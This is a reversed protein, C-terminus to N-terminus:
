AEFLPVFAFSQVDVLGLDTMKLEPIVPLALFSLAMFPNRLPSGWDRARAKLREIAEVVVELPQDSMLGAIPLPMVDVPGEDSGIALGGGCGRVAEVVRLIATDSAGVAILNHSDHAVTTAIAGRALGIGIVFGVAPPRGPVYRNYIVLKLIDREIDAVVQGERIKPPLLLKRTLLTGEKAGIVRMLGPQETVVLDRPDPESLSMPSRPLPPSSWSAPDLLLKGNRAVERGKRYVHIPSWPELTPSLTFSAEYGPAIGRLRFYSAPTWTALTLARVPDMGLSMARNVIANMHGERLLDDTHRDDSVLMGRPWSYDDVISFLSELDKSQSGERMM